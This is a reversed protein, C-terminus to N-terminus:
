KVIKDIDWARSSSKSPCLSEIVRCILTPRSNKNEGAAKELIFELKIGIYFLVQVFEKFNQPWM